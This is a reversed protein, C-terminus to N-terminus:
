PWARGFGAPPALMLSPIDLISVQPFIPDNPRRMERMKGSGSLKTITERINALWVFSCELDPVAYAVQANM